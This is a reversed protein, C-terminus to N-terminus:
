GRAQCYRRTIRHRHHFMIGLALNMAWGFLRDIWIGGPLEYDVRDTLRSGGPTSEFEHRHVWRAFPGEMQRDEFCRNKEFLTHVAVWRVMGIRLEVRSGAEIGGSKRIVRLPPFPPSLLQLADDREHFAFLTEVPAAVSLSKVFQPM